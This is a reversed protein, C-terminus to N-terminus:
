SARIFTAALDTHARWFFAHNKKKMGKVCITILISQRHGCPASTLARASSLTWRHFRLCFLGAM